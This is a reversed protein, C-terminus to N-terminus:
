RNALKKHGVKWGGVRGLVYWGGVLGRKGDKM